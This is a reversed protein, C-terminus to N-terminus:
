FRNKEKLWARFKIRAKAWEDEYSNIWEKTTITFGAKELGQEVTTYARVNVDGSGTGGKLTRRAGSGYLAIEGAKNLPFSGDSKLLVMCEPALMRVKEMHKIEYEKLAM